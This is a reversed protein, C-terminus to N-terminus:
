PRSKPQTPNAAEPAPQPTTPAAQATVPVSQPKQQLPQANSGNSGLATIAADFTQVEKQAREREQKLKQLIESVNGMAPAPSPKPAAKSSRSAERARAAGDNGVESPRCPLRGVM